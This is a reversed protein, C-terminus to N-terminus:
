TEFYGRLDHNYSYDRSLKQAETKLRSDLDILEKIHQSQSFYNEEKGGFIQKTLLSSQLQPQLWERAVMIGLIEIEEDELDINFQRLEEDRDSLDNKCQRFKAIASLLWDHLMEEMDREPLNAFEYDTFKQLARNYVTNYSTAM